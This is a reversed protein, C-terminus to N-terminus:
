ISEFASVISESISPFPSQLHKFNQLHQLYYATDKRLYDHLIHPSNFGSDYAIEAITHSKQQLQEISQRLRLEQILQNPDM